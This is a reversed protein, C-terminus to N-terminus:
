WAYKADVSDVAGIRKQEARSDTTSIRAWCRINLGSGRRGGGPVWPTKFGFNGGFMTSIWGLQWFPTEFKHWPKKARGM